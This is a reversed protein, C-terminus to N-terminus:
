SSSVSSTLPKGYTNVLRHSDHTLSERCTGSFAANPNSSKSETNHGKFYKLILGELSVQFSSNLVKVDRFLRTRGQEARVQVQRGSIHCKRSKWMKKKVWLSLKQKEAKNFQQKEVYQRHLVHM